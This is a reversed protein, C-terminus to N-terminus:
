DDDSIPQLSSSVQPEMAAAASALLQIQQELDVVAVVATFVAMAARAEAETTPREGVAQARDVTFFQLTAMIEMALRQEKHGGMRLPMIQMVLAQALLDQGRREEQVLIVM